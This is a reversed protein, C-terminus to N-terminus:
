TSLTEIRVAQAPLRLRRFSRFGPSTSPALLHVIFRQQQRHRAAIAM